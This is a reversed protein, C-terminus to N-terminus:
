NNKIKKHSYYYHGKSGTKKNNFRYYVLTDIPSSTPYILYMSDVLSAKEAWEMRIEIRKDTIVPNIGTFNELIDEDSTIEDVADKFANLGIAFDLANGEFASADAVAAIAPLLDDINLSQPNSNKTATTASFGNGASSTLNIGDPQEAVNRPVEPSAKLWSGISQFLKSLWSKKHGKVTVQNINVVDKDHDIKKVKGKDYNNQKITDLGFADIFNIPNNACYTFPSLGYIMGYHTLRPGDELLLTTFGLATIM